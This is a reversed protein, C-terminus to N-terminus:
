PKAAQGQLTERKHQAEMIDYRDALYWGFRRVFSFLFLTLLSDVYFWKRSLGLRCFVQWLLALFFYRMFCSCLWVNRLCTSLPQFPAFPSPIRFWTPRSISESSSSTFVTQQLLSVVERSVDLSTTNNSENGINNLPGMNKVEEAQM